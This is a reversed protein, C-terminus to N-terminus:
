SRAKKDFATMGSARLRFDPAVEGNMVNGKSEQDPRCGAPFSLVFLM